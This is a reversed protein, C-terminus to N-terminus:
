QHPVGENLYRLATAGSSVQNLADKLRRNAQEVGAIDGAANAHRLADEASVNEDVGASIRARAQAEMAQRQEPTPTPVNILSPYFQKGPQGKCADM